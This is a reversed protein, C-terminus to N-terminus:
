IKGHCHKYKKPRGDSHAAGCPCPDNRSPEKQGKLKISAGMKGSSSEEGPKFQSVAIDPRREEVRRPNEGAMSIAGVKFITHVIESRIAAQLQRFLRVGENKYEVLPDRQGYARLRVSDRLHEMQDLQDMWLVDITRLMVARESSRMQEDGVAKEHEEYKSELVDFIFTGIKNRKEDGYLEEGAIERLKHHMDDSISAISKVGEFIEELNWDDIRDASAHFEVLKSVEEKIMDFIRERLTVKEVESSSYNDLNGNPIQSKPNPIESFLIDKRLRYISDRQRNLVDDFELVHKRADFHFGEIKEQAAEIARSVMRNEIPQDEPIGLTEMMRRVREAGFIRMLDDEMSVFFQSEGSDGQRGARGRLQNDIRRAEHRETGIVCLGGLGRVIDAEKQDQPNGGLIIDVGRGAMNTAITVAGARGAQAIILAEREHNKANLVEHPVGEVELMKVLRENKEISVTGVLVPQGRGYREKVERVVAQMKGRETRFVLDPLDRRVMPRHTPVSIVDLNYVKHFEEASTQATGTMGGLKKYMRFYNQFTITALTRSEQEVRVGEKAEVAQHLGESWRRGPMLRGTFEDVITVKGDKVVYDRDRTFLAQARLAQELHHVFRIGKEEYINGIGLMQEVKDIGAETISVARLKEDVNYDINEKLRPVIKSFVRYLEASEADPASIILPTRAEDILISDVEDVIAYHHHKQRLSEPAYELNDRLYDFGFENNTGYTIDAAYAEHRACPRFHSLRPDDHRQIDQFEPDYIGSFEHAIVGTSVGLAHYVPGMWGAGVRSLYDNPTVLHAGRGELSNLYLPLTAVLTKGEGTKMEAIKGEHLVIGGALQVDFHRQNLKRKAAERVAAFAEPLIELLSGIGTVPIPDRNIGLRRKFEVTLNRLEEDSFKEFDKELENIEDVIPQLSKIYRENADGFIKGLISM